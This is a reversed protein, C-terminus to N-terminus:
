LFVGFLVLKNSMCWEYWSISSHFVTSHLKTGNYIEFYQWLAKKYVKLFEYNFFFFVNISCFDTYQPNITARHPVLMTNKVHYYWSAAVM